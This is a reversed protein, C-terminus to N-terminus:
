TERKQIRMRAENLMVSFPKPPYNFIERKDLKKLAGETVCIVAHNYDRGSAFANIQQSNMVYLKPKQIGSALSIGEVLDHYMKYDQHNALKAGVSAVAIKDSNYYSLFIYGISFIISFIMIIFFYGPEFAKSIIYGFSVLILFVVLMLFFSNRKNRAIQDNFDIRQM